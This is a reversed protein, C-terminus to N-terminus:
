KDLGLNVPHDKESTIFFQKMFESFLAYDLKKKGGETIYDYARQAAGEDIEWTSMM